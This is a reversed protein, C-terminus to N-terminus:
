KSKSEELLDNLLLYHQDSLYRYLVREQGFSDGCPKFLEEEYDYQYDGEPDFM